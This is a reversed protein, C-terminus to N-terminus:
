HLKIRSKRRRASSAKIGSSVLSVLGPVFLLVLLGGLVALFILWTSKQPSEPLVGGPNYSAEVQSGSGLRVTLSRRIGDRLSAPSTYTFKYESQLVQSYQEYIGKLSDPSSALSFLGGAQSSLSKLANEDLYYLSGPQTVDGLGIISISLGEPSIANIVDEPTHTSRNDMGDTLVLLAKRGSFGQMIGAAQVLADYMATDNEARLGQMAQILAAHDSTLPQVYNVQTNFALLGAQDGPRMQDIFAMAASKAGDLKGWNNMSGSVDMVLLVTLPGIEGSGSVEEAQLVQGNELIQIQNPDVGVPQGNPDTASIYVTVNPFQSTDVQTIRVQTQQSQALGNMQAPFMLLLSLFIPILLPIKKM